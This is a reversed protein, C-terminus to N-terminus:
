CVHGGIWAFTESLDLEQIAKSLQPICNAEDLAIERELLPDVRHYRDGLFNHCMLSSKQIMSDWMVVSMKPLWQYLGFNHATGDDEIYHPVHGTSLSLLVVDELKVGHQRVAWSLAYDSPSHAFVGGDVYGQWSPFYTPAACSRLVVDKALHDPGKEFSSFTAIQMSRHEEAKDDLQLSPVLCPISAEQLKRNGWVAECCMELYRNSWKAQSINYRAQCESFIATCTLQTLKRITEIPIGFALGVSVLAGNSTGALLSVRDLFDPFRAIIRELIICSVIGRAGGGDISLIFYPRKKQEPSGKRNWKELPTSLTDHLTNYFDLTLLSELAHPHTPHLCNQGLAQMWDIFDADSSCKLTLIRRPIEDGNRALQTCIHLINPTESTEVVSNALPFMGQTQRWQLIFGVSSKAVHYQAWNEWYSGPYQLVWVKGSLHELDWMDLPSALTRKKGDACVVDRAQGHESTVISPILASGFSIEIEDHIISYTLAGRRLCFYRERWKGETIDKTTGTPQKLLFGEKATPEGDAVINRDALINREASRSERNGM